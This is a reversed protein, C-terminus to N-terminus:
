SGRSRAPPPPNKSNSSHSTPDFIVSIESTTAEPYMLEQVVRSIDGDREIAATAGGEVVFGGHGVAVAHEGSSAEVRLEPVAPGGRDVAFHIEAALAVGVVDDAGREPDRKSGDM